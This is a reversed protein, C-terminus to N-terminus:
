IGLIIKLNLLTGLLRFLGFLIPYVLIYNSNNVSIKRLFLYSSGIMIGLVFMDFIFWANVSILFRTIPNSEV